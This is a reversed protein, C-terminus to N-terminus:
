IRLTDSTWNGLSAITDLSLNRRSDNRPLHESQPQLMNKPTGAIMEEILVAMRRESINDPITDVEKEEGSYAPSGIQDRCCIEPVCTGDDCFNFKGIREKRSRRLKNKVKERPKKEKREHTELMKDDNEDIKEHTIESRIVEDEIIETMEATEIRNATKEDDNIVSATAVQKQNVIVIEKTNSPRASKDRRILRKNTRQKRSDRKKSTDKDMKLDDHKGRKTSAERISLISATEKLIENNAAAANAYKEMEKGITEFYQREVDALESDGMLAWIDKSKKSRLKKREREPKKKEEIKKDKDSKRTSGRSKIKVKLSPTSPEPEQDAIRQALRTEKLRNDVAKEYRNCRDFLATMLTRDNLSNTTLAESSEVLYIRGRDSGVAVLKGDEHPAIAKLNDECLRTTTVPMKLGLLIDFIEMMGENNIVYFVSYRSTSWCAGTLISKHQKNFLLSGEKADEAWIKTSWDGVTLYNKASFPNRDITIVPGYHCEFKIAIKEAANKGKRNANIILGNELGALFKTGMTSEYQLSSVGTARVIDGEAPNELDIILSEVHKKFMRIDWWYITGETSASFFESDTKSNIWLACNAPYKHSFQPHSIMIPTNGSRIDWNCVQGSMLGSILMSPDRPNFEITVLPHPPKLAMLAKNPNEIEWIYSLPSRNNSGKSFGVSCYSAALRKGNDSSWSLHTIARTVDQLDKYVNVTRVSPSVMNPPVIDDFYHEYINVANNQLIYREMPEMLHRMKPAWNDEKEIRRRYRAVAEEDRANIEKPWGGEAHRMGNEKTITSETQVAFQKSMQVGRHIPNMYIYDEMLQSNPYINEEVTPDSDDFVCQKGFKSRTKVYVYKIEM